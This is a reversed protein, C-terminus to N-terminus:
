LTYVKRKKRKKQKEGEEPLADPAPIMPQAWNFDRLLSDLQLQMQGDGFFQMMQRQMQEVMEESFLQEGFGNLDDGQFFLTDIRIMGNAGFGMQDMFQQMQQEMREMEEALQQDTMQAQTSFTLAFFCCLTLMFSKM